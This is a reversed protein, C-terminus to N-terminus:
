RPTGAPRHRAPGAGPSMKSRSSTSPQPSSQVSTTREHGAGPRARRQRHHFAVRDDDRAVCARPRDAHKRSLSRQLARTWRSGGARQRRPPRAADDRHRPHGSRLFPCARTGVWRSPLVPPAPHQGRLGHHAPPAERDRGGSCPGLSAGSQERSGEHRAWRDHAVWPNRESRESWVHSGERIGEPPCAPRVRGRCCRGGGLQRCWWVGREGALGGRRELFGLASFMPMAIGVALWFIRLKARGCPCVHASPASSTPIMILWVYAQPLVSGYTGMFLRYAMEGSDMSVQPSQLRFVSGGVMLGILMGIAVPVFAGLGSAAAAERRDGALERAHVTCTFTSQLAIQVLVIALGARGRLFVGAYALTFLIMSLFLVGFGVTFAM